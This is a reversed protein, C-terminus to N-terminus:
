ASLPYVLFKIFFKKKIDSLKFAYLLLNFLIYVVYLQLAVFLLNRGKNIVCIYTYIYIYIYVLLLGAFMAESREAFMIESREAFIVESREAFMVESREDFM